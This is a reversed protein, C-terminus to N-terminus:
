LLGLTGHDVKGRGCIVDNGRIEESACNPSHLRNSNSHSRRSTEVSLSTMKMHVFSNVPFAINNSPELTHVYKSPQYYFCYDSMVPTHKRTKQVKKCTKLHIARM